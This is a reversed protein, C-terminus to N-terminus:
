VATACRMIALNPAIINFTIEILLNSWDYVLKRVSRSQLVCEGFGVGDDAGVSGIIIGIGVM